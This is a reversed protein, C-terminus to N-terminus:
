STQQICKKTGKQLLREENIRSSTGEHTQKITKQHIEKKRVHEIKNLHHFFIIKSIPDPLLLITMPLEILICPIRGRFHTSHLALHVINVNAENKLPYHPAEKPHIIILFL